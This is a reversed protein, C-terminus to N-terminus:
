RFAEAQVRRTALVAIDQQCDAIITSFFGPEM